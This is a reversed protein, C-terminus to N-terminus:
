GHLCDNLWALQQGQRLGQMPVVVGVGYARLGPELLERYREGAFIVVTDVGVLLLDISELVENAWSRREAVPMANLTKEYPRIVEDPHLLGFEASLIAWPCGTSEVCARAKRFWDSIYLDKAAARRPLKTKVCSVLFLRRGGDDMSAGPKTRSEPRPVRTPAREAAVGVTDDTSRDLIEYRFETTTSQRPGVRGMLRLGAERLFQSSGLASCVAAARNSLGMDRTVDGARITLTPEGADRAPKVLRAVAFSRIRDAQSMAAMPQSPHPSCTPQGSSTSAGTSSSPPRQGNPSRVFSVVGAAVGVDRTTWGAALWASAHSHSKSNSWWAQHTRASQPLRFGLITELETFTPHWVDGPVANLHRYLALYKGRPASPRDATGAPKLSAGSTSILFDASREVPSRAPAPSGRAVSGDPAQEQSRLPQLQEHYLRGVVDFAREAGLAELLQRLTSLHDLALDPTLSGAYHAVENRADKAAFALTRVRRPLPLEGFRDIFVKLLRQLDFDRFATRRTRPLAALYEALAGRLVVLAQDVRRRAQESERGPHKM